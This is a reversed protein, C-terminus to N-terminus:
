KRPKQHAPDMKELLFGLLVELHANAPNPRMMNVDAVLNCCCIHQHFLETIFQFSAHHSCYCM